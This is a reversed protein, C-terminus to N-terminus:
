YTPDVAEGELSRKCSRQWTELEKIMENLLRPNKIAIDNKEGPDNILDFMM